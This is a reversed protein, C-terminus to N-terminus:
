SGKKAMFLPNRNKRNTARDIYEINKFIPEESHFHIKNPDCNFFLKLSYRSTEDKIGSMIPIIAYKGPMVAFSVVITRFPKAPRQVIEKKPEYSAVFENKKVILGKGMNMILLGINARHDKYEAGLEQNLRPDQQTLIAM